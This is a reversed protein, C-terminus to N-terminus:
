AGDSSRYIFWEGTTGRYVGIDTRGDADYDGPVPIDEGGPWGWGVQTLGGDSSRYIFWEGTTGRYVGIDTRGDADYDGPVPLDEGGPWGWGVQTLGGDSSRYIFWEGTTTRYVGIDGRGDGDYDGPVPLDGMVTLRLTPDGLVVPTAFHFERAESWPYVLPVNVHARVAQGFNRQQSLATAINHGYFGNQNNGMGGSNNTTGKAVLVASTPSFLISTLFNDTQDLDGIACGSSWFFVTRVAHSEVWAIDIQGAGASSGHTDTVTFDATDTQLDSYGTSVSMTPGNIYLRAGISNSFPTWSYTGNKMFAIKQDQDAQTSATQLENIELYARPIAYGGTRYLHNKAFYRNIASASQSTSGKYYPLVGVWLEWDMNGSHVDYSFAHNGPSVYGSSATFAGDLDSYYQFSIVEERTDPIGPNASHLVVFQYAHPINGVIIAGELHRNTRTYLDGL